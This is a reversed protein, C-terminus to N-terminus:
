RQSSHKPTIGYIEQADIDEASDDDSEDSSSSSFETYPYSLIPQISDFLGTGGDVRQKISSEARRSPLDSPNLITPNSNELSADM